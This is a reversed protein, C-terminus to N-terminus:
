LMYIESFAHILNKALVSMMCMRNLKTDTLLYRLQITVYLQLLILILIWFQSWFSVVRLCYLVSAIGWWYLAPSTDCHTVGHFRTFSTLTFAPLEHLLL